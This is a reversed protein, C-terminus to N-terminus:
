QAIIFLFKPLIGDYCSESVFFCYRRGTPSEFRLKSSKRASYEQPLVIEQKLTNKPLNLTITLNQWPIFLLIQVETFNVVVVGTSTHM